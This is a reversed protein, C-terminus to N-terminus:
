LEFYNTSPQLEPISQIVIQSKISSPSHSTDPKTTRTEISHHIIIQTLGEGDEGDLDM